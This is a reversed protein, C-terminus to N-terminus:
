KGGADNLVQTRAEADNPLNLKCTVQTEVFGSWWHAGGPVSRFMARFILYSLRFLIYNSIRQEFDDNNRKRRRESGKPVRGPVYHVEHRVASTIKSVGDCSALGSSAYIHPSFSTPFYALSLGTHKDKPTARLLEM